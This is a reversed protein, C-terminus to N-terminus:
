SRLSTYKNLWYGFPFRPKQLSEFSYVSFRAFLSSLIEAVEEDEKRVPGAVSGELERGFEPLLCELLGVSPLPEGGIGEMADGSTIRLNIAALM